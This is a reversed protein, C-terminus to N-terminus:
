SEEDAEKAYYKRWADVVEWPIVIPEIAVFHDYWGSVLIGEPTPEAEVGEARNNSRLRMM